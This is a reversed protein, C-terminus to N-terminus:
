VGRERENFYVNVMTETQVLCTSESKIVKYIKGGSGSRNSSVIACNLNGTDNASHNGPQKNQLQATTMRNELMTKM